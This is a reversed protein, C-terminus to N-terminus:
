SRLNSGPSLASCRSATTDVTKPSKARRPPLMCVCWAPHALLQLMCVCVLSHARTTTATTATPQLFRRLLLRLLPLLLLPTRAPRPSHHQRRHCCCRRSRHRRRRHNHDHDPLLTPYCSTKSTSSPSSPPIAIAHTLLTVHM